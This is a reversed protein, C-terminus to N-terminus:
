VLGREAMSAARNNWVVFHDLVQVDVLALAEELVRTLVLAAESPEVEGSSHNHALIARTGGGDRQLAASM